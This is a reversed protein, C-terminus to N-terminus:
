SGLMVGAAGLALVVIIVAMVVRSVGVKKHHRVVRLAEALKALKAAELVTVAPVLELVTLHKVLLPWAPFAVIVVLLEFAHSWVWKWRRDVVRLMVVANVAFVVWAASAVVFGLVDTARSLHAVQLAVGIVALLAAVLLLGDFRDQWLLAREASTLPRGGHGGM